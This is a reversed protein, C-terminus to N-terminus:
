SARRAAREAAQQRSATQYAAVAEREARHANRLAKHAASREPSSKFILKICCECALERMGTCVPPPLAERAARAAHVAAKAAMLDAQLSRLHERTHM